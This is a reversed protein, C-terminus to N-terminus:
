SFKETSILKVHRVRMFGRGIVTSIIGGHCSCLWMSRLAIEFNPSPLHAAPIILIGIEQFYWTKLKFSRKM